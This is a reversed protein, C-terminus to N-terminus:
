SARRYGEKSKEALSSVPAATARLWAADFNPFLSRMEDRTMETFRVVERAAIREAPTRTETKM